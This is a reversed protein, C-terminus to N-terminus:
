LRRALAKFLKVFCEITMPPTEQHLSLAVNKPSLWTETHNLFCVKVEDPVGSAKMLDRRALLVYRCLRPYGSHRTHDQSYALDLCHANNPKDDHNNSIRDHFINKAIESIFQQQISLM